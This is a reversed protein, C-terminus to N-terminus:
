VQTADFFDKKADDQPCASVRIGAHVHALM